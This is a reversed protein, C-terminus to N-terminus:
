SMEAAGASSPIRLGEALGSRDTRAVDRRRRLRRSEPSGAAALRRRADFRHTPAPGDAALELPLIRHNRRSSLPNLHLQLPLQTIKGHGFERM